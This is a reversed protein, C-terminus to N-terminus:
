SRRNKGNSNIAYNLLFSDSEQSVADTESVHNAPDYQHYQEIERWSTEERPKLDEFVSSIDPSAPPQYYFEMIDQVKISKTAGQLMDVEKVAKLDINSGSQAKLFSEIEGQLQCLQMHKENLMLKADILKM